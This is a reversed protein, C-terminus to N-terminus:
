GRGPRRSPSGPVKALPHHTLVLQRLREELVHTYIQTTSIDAHGLLQQVARLEAGRELLHSAFAHRLVHPSLRAPDIDAQAAASKLEQAFRQRTLHGQGAASPFLWPSRALAPAIRALEATYAALAERAARSLPVIRERGGKGKVTIVRDDSHAVTSPLSVLESVRLGTAYLLEILCHLRLGRLRQGADGNAAAQAAAALLADVEDIGLVKPLPRGRKPGEISASPDDKRYDEAFLFRFFQRLASLKRARSSAALGSSALSELYDSLDEARANVAKRKRRGLWALFDSLDRSYAELTNAAAGREASLMELFLGAHGDEPMQKSDKRAPM